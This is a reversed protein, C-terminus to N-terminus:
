GAREICRPKRDDLEIESSDVNNLSEKLIRNDQSVMEHLDTAMHLAQVSAENINAITGNLSNRMSPDSIVDNASKATITLQDLLKNTKVTTVKLADILGGAQTQLTAFSLGQAGTITADAAYYSRKAEPAPTKPPLIEVKSQSGLLSSVITVSADTPIKVDQHIRARVLAAGNRALQIDEVEGIPVGSFEVDSGKAVGEADAFEITVMYSSNAIQDHKFFVYGGVFILSAIVVLIGVQLASTNTGM